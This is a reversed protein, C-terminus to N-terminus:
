AVVTREETKTDIYSFEGSDLWGVYKGFTDLCVNLRGRAVNIGIERMPTHGVIQHFEELEDMVYWRQWVIGDIGLVPDVVKGRAPAKLAALCRAEVKAPTLNLGFVFRSIGAHSFAYEREFHVLKLRSWHEDWNLVQSVLESKKPTFGPCYLSPESVFGYPLDHNGWLHIRNPQALSDRLWRATREADEPTDGFNDFYDGLFIIRDAPFREIWEDASDVHNHIDPIVLTTM